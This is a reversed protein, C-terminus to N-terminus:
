AVNQRAKMEIKKATRFSAWILLGVWSLGLLSVWVPEKLPAGSLLYFVFGILWIYGLRRAARAASASQTNQEASDQKPAGAIMRKRLVAALVISGVFYCPGVYLFWNPFPHQPHTFARYLVFGMYPLMLGLMLVLIKAKPKMPVDRV